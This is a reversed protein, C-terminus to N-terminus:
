HRKAKRTSCIQVYVHIYWEQVRDRGLDMMGLDRDEVKWVPEGIIEEMDDSETTSREKLGLKLLNLILPVWAITIKSVDLRKFLTADNFSPGAEKWDTLTTNLSDHM